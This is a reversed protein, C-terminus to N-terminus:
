SWDERLSDDRPCTSQGIDERRGIDPHTRRQVSRRDAQCLLGLLDRSIV